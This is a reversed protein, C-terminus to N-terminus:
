PQTKATVLGLERVHDRLAARWLEPRHHIFHGDGPIPPSLSLRAVGGARTFAEHAARITQATYRSDNEAFVWLSPVRMQRGFAEFGDVMTRNLAGPGESGAMDTRGGSFNVVGVVGPVGAAGIHMVSYGGASQGALIIRGADIEPITRLHDLAPLIDRAHIRAKYTPDGDHRSFGRPYSGQSMAVGRRAPIAVALGLQLFETAVIMDRFRRKHRMWPTGVEVDGHNFVAVPFPGPGDPLLLTMELQLTGTLEPVPFTLVQERWAVGPAAAGFTAPVPAADLWNVVVDAFGQDLRALVHHSDRGCDLRPEHREYGAEVLAFGSRRAVLRAELFPAVECTSTPAHVLLVQARLAGWDSARSDLFGGSVGVIRGVGDLPAAVDLVPAVNNAFLGLHVAAGPFRSRLHNVVAQLDRRMEGPIRAGPATRRVDSPVDAFAVAVGRENLAGAVRVWPGTLNLATTGSAVKLLPEANPSPYLVVHRTSLASPARVAVALRAREGSELIRTPITEVVWPPAPAAPQGRVPGFVVASIALWALGRLVALRMRRPAAPLTM